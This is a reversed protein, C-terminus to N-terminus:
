SEGGLAKTIVAGSSANLYTSFGDFVAKQETVTYGARPIDFVVYVAMSVEVNEVPKMPDASIKRVDIRLQRRTRKGRGQDYLHSFLLSTLGDNSQYESKDDGTSIRPLTIPVASITVVSPDTMSM